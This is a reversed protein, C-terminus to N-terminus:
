VSIAHYVSFYCSVCLFLRICVSVLEDGTVKRSIVAEYDGYKQVEELTDGNMNYTVQLFGCVNSLSLRIIRIDGWIRFKMGLLRDDLLYFLM